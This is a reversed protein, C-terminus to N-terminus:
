LASRRGTKSGREAKKLKCLEFLDFVNERTLYKELCEGAVEQVSRDYVGGIIILEKLIDLSVDDGLDIGYLIKVFNEVTESSAEPIVLKRERREMFAEDAGFFTDFFM